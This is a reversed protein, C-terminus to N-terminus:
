CPIVHIDNRLEIRKETSLVVSLIPVDELLDYPVIKINKTETRTDFKSLYYLPENQNPWSFSFGHAPSRVDSARSTLFYAKQFHPNNLVITVNETVIGRLGLKLLNPFCSSVIEGLANSITDCDIHLIKISILEKKFPKIMLEHCYISLERLTPPCVDLCDTLDLLENEPDISSLMLDTLATLNKVLPISDIGANGMNLSDIRQSLIPDSLYELKTRENRFV